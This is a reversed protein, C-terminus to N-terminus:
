MNANFWFAVAHSICLTRFFPPRTPKVVQDGPSAHPLIYSVIEFYVGQEFYGILSVEEEM